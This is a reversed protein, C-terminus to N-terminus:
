KIKKIMIEFIRKDARRAKRLMKQARPSILIRWEGFGRVSDFYLASRISQVIPFAGQDTLRYDSDSLDNTELPDSQWAM